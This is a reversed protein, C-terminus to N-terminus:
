WNRKSERRLALFKDQLIVAKFTCVTRGARETDKSSFIPPIYFVFARPYANGRERGRKVGVRLESDKRYGSEEELIALIKEKVIQGDGRGEEEEVEEENKKVTFFPFQTVAGLISM